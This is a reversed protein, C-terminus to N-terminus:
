RDAAGCDSFAIRALGLLVLDPVVRARSGAVFAALKLADGGTWVQWPSPELRESQRAIIEKIAGVTGWFLGSRLSPETANGWAPPAEVVDVLPLQATLTHLARAALGLGPAIAGGQWTGDASIHEVVVASGCSIVLGPRGVRELQMAASVALARDAGATVSRELAHQVPVDAASTWWRVDAVPRGALFGELRQAVPPNVSAIAWRSSSDSLSWSEWAECWANPDDVPLSLSAALRGSADLRGWKLRSNGLDVVIAAL